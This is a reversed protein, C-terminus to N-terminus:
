QDPLLCSGPIAFLHRDNGHHVIVMGTFQGRLQDILSSLPQQAELKVPLQALKASLPESSDYRLGAIGNGGKVEVTLSKLVDNMEGAKFDLRATEGPGLEGAREFYGVGHKYLVVNRVNLEAAPSVMAGALTLALGRTVRRRSMDKRAKRKGLTAM